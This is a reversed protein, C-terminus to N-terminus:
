RKVYVEEDKFVLSLESLPKPPPGSINKGDTNYKGNHCPCVFLNEAENFRVTCFQHTCTADFAKLKGDASKVLIGQRKGWRFTKGPQSEVDALRGILIDSQLENLSDRGSLYSRVYAYVPYSAVAAWVAAFAALIGKIFGRRSVKSGSM